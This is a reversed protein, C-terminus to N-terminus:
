PDSDHNRALPKRTLEAAPDFPQEDLAEASGQEVILQRQPLPLPRAQMKMKARRSAGQADVLDLGADGLVHTGPVIPEALTEDGLVPGLAAALESLAIRAEERGLVSSGGIECGRDVVDAVDLHEALRTRHFDVEAI